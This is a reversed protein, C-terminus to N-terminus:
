AIVEEISSAVRQLDRAAQPFQAKCEAICGEIVEEIYEEQDYGSAHPIDGREIGWLSDRAVEHGDVLATVVIGVYCWDGRGLAEMMEYEVRPIRSARVWAEHKSYGLRNFADREALVDKPTCAPIFWRCERHNWQPEWRYFTEDFFRAEVWGARDIAGEDWRSSYEGLYSTDADYDAVVKIKYTVGDREITKEEIVDDQWSM